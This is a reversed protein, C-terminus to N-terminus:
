DKKILAQCFIEDTARHLISIGGMPEWGQDILQNVKDILMEPINDYVLTYKM